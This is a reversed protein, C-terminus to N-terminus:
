LDFGDVMSRDPLPHGSLTTTCAAEAIGACLTVVTVQSDPHCGSITAVRPNGM